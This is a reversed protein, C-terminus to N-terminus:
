QKVVRKTVMGNETVIRIFYTGATYSSLNLSATPSDANMTQLLKGYVDYLSVTELTSGTCQIQISGTTPNPFVTVTNDITYENIGDPMTTFSVPNSPTSWLGNTCRAKIQIDYSTNPSLGTLTYPNNSTTITNWYSSSSAKYQVDWRSATSDEQMWSITAEHLTTDSVSVNTPSPCTGQQNLTLFNLETGYTTGSPTTAFARFTHYTNAMLGTLNYDMTTNPVNVPTYTNGSAEKWEFGYTLLPESGPSVSGHLTASTATISSISLTSVTPPVIPPLPGNCEEVTIDDLNIGYAYRSTGKFKIQYTSSPYYLRLSNQTWTAPTSHTACHTWPDTPSSRYYVQLIESGNTYWYTLVPNTLGTIDMTPLQLSSESGYIRQYFQVAYDGSYASTISGHFDSNVVTWPINGVDCFYNWCAPLSGNCNEFDETFPATPTVVVVDCLTAANAVNSWLSSDSAACVSRVYFKYFTNNPLGTVTFPNSTALVTTGSGTGPTFDSTSYEIEWASATGNETWSLLVSTPSVGTAVLATPAPCSITTTFQVTFTADPVLDGIACNTVVYADYTTEPTLGTIQTTTTNSVTTSWVSSSSEKYYVTWSHHSTDNDTWSITANYAGVSTITVNNKIPSPCSPGIEVIIDDINWSVPMSSTNKYRLAIRGNIAAVGNFDFPGSHNGFSANTANYPGYHGPADAFAVFEFTSTDAINTIVGVEVTTTYTSSTTAWFSLRLDHINNNFEPLVVINEDGRMELSSQGSHCAPIYHGYVSPYSVSNMVQSVPTEWCILPQHGSESYSEFDEIWPNNDTVTIAGCETNFTLVPSPYSTDSGCISSVTVRYNSNGDLNDLLLTTDYVVYTNTDPGAVTVLYEGSTPSWSLEATHPTINSTSLNVPAICTFCSATLIFGSNQISVDSIFQITLPGSISIVQIPQLNSNSFSALLTGSTGVGDYINLSDLFYITCTGELKLAAGATEPYLVLTSNCNASYNGDPGGDDYIIAGCTTLTNYGTAAMTYQGTLVSIPGCYDSTTSGCDSKVYFDYIVSSTLGQIIYPHTSTSDLTGLGQGPTFGTPGYEVIWSTANGIETWDLTVHHYGANTSVLTNPHICAPIETIAVDDLVFTNGSNDTARFAINHGVGHYQDLLIIFHEWTGTASSVITDLVDFTTADHIDAIVGVEFTGASGTHLAEFEVMLTSMPTSYPIAPSVAMTFGNSSNNFVLAGNGGATHNYQTNRYVFYSPDSSLRDWCLVYNNQSTSIINDEFHEYFPISIEGCDTRGALTRWTSNCAAQLRILYETNANLGTLTYSNGSLGYIGNWSTDAVSKYELNWSTENNGPVWQIGITSETSGTLTFNPTACTNATDCVNGFIINNRYPQHMYSYSSAISPDLNSFDNSILISRKDPNQTCYYANSANVIGTNDDVILMLNSAGDYVYSSDFNITFWGPAINVTGSFVLQATSDVNVASTLSSASTPMLYIDWNRNATNAYLAQFSISHFTNPEGLEGVTFVQESLCHKYYSNAPFHSSSNTGDGIAVNGGVLCRTQFDISAWNGELYGGCNSKVKVEYHTLPMLGGLLYSTGTINYVTDWNNGLLTDRYMLTYNVAAGFSGDTWTILASTGSIQVVDLDEVPACDGYMVVITHPESVNYFTYTFIPGQSANDIEVDMLHYRDTEHFTFVVTDGQTANYVGNTGWPTVLGAVALPSGDDLVTSVSIPHEVQAQVQQVPALFGILFALMLATAWYFLRM